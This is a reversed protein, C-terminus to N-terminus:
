SKFTRGLSCALLLQSLWRHSSCVCILWNGNAVQRKGSAVRGNGSVRMHTSNNCNNHIATMSLEIQICGNPLCNQLEDRERKRKVLGMYTWLNQGTPWTRAFPSSNWLSLKMNTALFLPQGALFLVDHSGISYIYTRRHNRCATPVVTKPWGM